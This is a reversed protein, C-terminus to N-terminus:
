TENHFIANFRYKKFNYIWWCSWHTSYYLSLKINVQNNVARSKITFWGLIYAPHFSPTLYHLNYNFVLTVHTPLGRAPLLYFPDPSISSFIRAPHSPQRLGSLLYGATSSLAFFLSICLTTHSSHRYVHMAAFTIRFARHCSLQVGSFTHSPQAPQHLCVWLSPLRHWLLPIPNPSEKKSTDLNFQFKETLHWIGM